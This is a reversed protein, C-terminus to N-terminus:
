EVAVKRRDNDTKPLNISIYDKELLELGPMTSKDKILQSKVKGFNENVTEKVYEKDLGLGKLHEVLKAEDVINLSKRVARTVTAFEFRASFEGTRVMSRMIDENLQEKLELLPDVNERYQQTLGDIDNRLELLRKVKEQLTM